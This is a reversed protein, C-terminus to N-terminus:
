GAKFTNEEGGVASLTLGSIFAKSQNVFLFAGVTLLFLSHTFGCLSKYEFSIEIFDITSKNSGGFLFDECRLILLFFFLKRM